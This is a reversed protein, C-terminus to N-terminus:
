KLGRRRTAARDITSCPASVHDELRSSGPQNTLSSASRSSTGEGGDREVTEVTGRCGEDERCVPQQFHLWCAPRARYIARPFLIGGGESAGKRGARRRRPRVGRFAKEPCSWTMSWVCGPRNSPESARATAWSGSGGGASSGAWGRQNGGNQSGRYKSHAVSAMRGNTRREYMRKPHFLRHPKARWGGCMGGRRVEDQRVWSIGTGVQGADTRHHPALLCVSTGAHNVHIDLHFHSLTHRSGPKAHM